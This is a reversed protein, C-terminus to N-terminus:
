SKHRETHHGSMVSSRAGFGVHASNPPCDVPGSLKRNLAHSLVVLKDSHEKLLLNMVEARVAQGSLTV